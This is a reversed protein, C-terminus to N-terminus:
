QGDPGRTKVPLIIQFEKNDGAKDKWEGNGAHIVKDLGMSKNSDM